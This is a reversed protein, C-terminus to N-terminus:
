GSYGNPHRKHWNWASEVITELEPFQPRWGLESSAKRNSGVLVAPDGRRREVVRAPIPRGTVNRAIEIVEKVSYGDGNGLNYEGGPLGNLLRELALLHARALDEVHIYDRICTGDRTPYDDGFIDIHPRKGLAAQLVLPILHTEPNHDEGLEGDSDAGAANFYRLSVSELGYAEGFDQLIQEVMLKTRGYPSIPKQPQDEPIPIEVPEGYTACSSSFIFNPVKKEVMVELLAITNAVNNQYYMAPERASEGVYCFAAFHMVAAIQHDSFIKRLLDTDSMSGKFFAGWKVAQRHGCVLNDLLIPHYGHKFLHKCMHSGIYGAGGVVLINKM